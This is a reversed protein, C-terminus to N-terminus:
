NLARNALEDAEETESRNVAWFYVFIGRNSYKGLLNDLRRILDQNAVNTGMSTMWGNMQWKYIYYSISNVVYRSDTVIIYETIDQHDLWCEWIQEMGVIAAWLEARQSTHVPPEPVKGWQNYRSVEGFYVGYAGQAWPHGNGPCAGDVFLGIINPEVGGRTARLNFFSGRSNSILIDSPLLHSDWNYDTPDFERDYRM